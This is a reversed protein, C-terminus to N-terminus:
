EFREAEKLKDAIVRNFREVLGNQSPAYLAVKKLEIKRETLFDM